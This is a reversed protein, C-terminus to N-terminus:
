AEHPLWTVCGAGSAPARHRGGHGRPLECRPGDAGHAAGCREPGSDGGDEPCQSLSSPVYALGLPVTHTGNCEHCPVSGSAQVISGPGSRETFTPYDEGGFCEPGVPDLPEGGLHFSYSADEPREGDDLPESGNDDRCPASVAGGLAHYDCRRGGSQFCAPELPGDFPAGMEGYLSSLQVKRVFPGRPSWPLREGRMGVGYVTGDPDVGAGCIPSEGAMKGHVGNLSSVAGARELREIREQLGDARQNVGDVSQAVELLADWAGDLRRGFRRLTVERGVVFGCVAGVAGVIRNLM